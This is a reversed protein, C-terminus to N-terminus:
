DFPSRADPGTPRTRRVLGLVLFVFAGILLLHILDGGIKLFVFFVLWAALCVAVLCFFLNVLANINKM